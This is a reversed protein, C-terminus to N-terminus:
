KKYFNREIINMTNPLNYNLNRTIKKVSIVVTKKKNKLVEIKSKSNYIKVLYNIIKKLRIPKSASFNFSNRIKKNNKIIYKIIKVIEMVDIISNYKKGINFIKIPLHNKLKYATKNLWPRIKSKKSIVGPLRLNIYNLKSKKLISEGISKTYGLLSHSDKKSTERLIINKNQEYISITSLNIFIKIKREVGLKILNELSKVNSNIYDKETVNKTFEHSAICNIIYGFKQKIRRKKSFDIKIWILNQHKFLKKSYNNYTSIIKFDKVLNCILEQGIQGSGGAILIVKSM